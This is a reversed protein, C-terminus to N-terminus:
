LVDADKLEGKNLTKNLNKEDDSIHGLLLNKM